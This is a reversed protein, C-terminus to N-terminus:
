NKSPYLNIQFIEMKEIIFLYQITTKQKGIIEKLRLSMELTNINITAM